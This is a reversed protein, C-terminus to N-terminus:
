KTEERAARAAELAARAEAAADLAEQNWDDPMTLEAWAMDGWEADDVEDDTTHTAGCFDCVARKAIGDALLALTRNEEELAGHVDDSTLQYHNVFKDTM